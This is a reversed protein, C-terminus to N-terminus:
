TRVPHPILRLERRESWTTCIMIPEAAPATKCIFAEACAGQIERDTQEDDYMSLGILYVEPMEAKVRRIAEIGDMVPMSIGIVNVDRDIGAPDM